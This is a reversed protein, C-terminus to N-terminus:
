LRMIVLRPIVCLFYMGAVEIAAVEVNRSDGACLLAREFLYRSRWEVSSKFELRSAAAASFTSSSRRGLFQSSVRRVKAEIEKCRLM